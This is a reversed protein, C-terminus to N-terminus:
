DEFGEMSYLSYDHIIRFDWMQEGWELNCEYGVSFFMNILFLINPTNEQFFASIM